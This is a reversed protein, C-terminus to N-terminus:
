RLTGFTTMTGMTSLPAVQSKNTTQCGPSIAPGNRVNSLSSFSFDCYVFPLRRPDTWGRVNCKGVIAVGRDGDHGAHGGCHLPMRGDFTGSSHCRPRDGSGMRRMRFRARSGAHRELRELFEHLRRGSERKPFLAPLEVRLVEALYILTPDDVFVMRAEIKSVGSRDIDFGAIQLKAAFVSQSWLAPTPSAPRHSEQVAHAARATVETTRKATEFSVRPSSDTECLRAQPNLEEFNGHPNPRSSSLRVQHSIALM